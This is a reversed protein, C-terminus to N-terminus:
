IATPMKGIRTRGQPKRKDLWEASYRQEDSRTARVAMAPGFTAVLNRNGGVSRLRLVRPWSRPPM